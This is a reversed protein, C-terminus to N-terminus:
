KYKNTIKKILKDLNDCDITEILIDNLIESVGVTKKRKIDLIYLNRDINFTTFRKGFSRNLLDMAKGEKSSKFVKFANNEIIKNAKIAEDNIDKAIRQALANAQGKSLKM